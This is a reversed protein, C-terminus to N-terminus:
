CKLSFYQRKQKLIKNSVKSQLNIISIILFLHHLRYSESLVKNIELLFNVPLCISHLLEFSSLM